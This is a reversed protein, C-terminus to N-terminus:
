ELPQQPKWKTSSTQTNINVAEYKIRTPIILGWMHLNYLHYLRTENDAAGEENKQGRLVKNKTENFCCCSPM